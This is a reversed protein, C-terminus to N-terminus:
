PAALIEDAWKESEVANEPPSLLQAKGDMADLLNGLAYTMFDSGAEIGGLPFFVPTEDEMVAVYSCPGDMPFYRFQGRGLEWMRALDTFHCVTHIDKKGWVWLERVRNVLCNLSNHFKDFRRIYNVNVKWRKPVGHVTGPAHFPKEIWAGRISQCDSLVGVVEIRQEPQTCISVVDVPSDRMTDYLMQAWDDPRASVSPVGLKLGAASARVPDPDFVWALKVRDKLALYAEAHTYLYPALPWRYGAGIRGCGLIAARIM